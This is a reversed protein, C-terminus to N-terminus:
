VAVQLVSPLVELVRPTMQIVEGDVMLDVPKDIDFMVKEVKSVRVRPHDTHTGSFIKPFTRLLEFRGMEGVHVMAAYGDSVEAHPAMMMKGGTFRSNNFSLFTCPELNQAEGDCTHPFVRPALGLVKAVVALIYGAEGLPKFRRNTLSGVEAVFGISLLNIYHVTGEVCELRIVDCPSRRGDILAQLSYEAGEDSFDRLFSNGTGLPLFGLVPKEDADSAAPFLGNIIEYGTGDGGIGIFHRRGDDWARRALETAHGAHTTELVDVDIGGDRLREIVAPATEGSRGGGAAPNCIALFRDTM